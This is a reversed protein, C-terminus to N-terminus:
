GGLGSDGGKLEELVEVKAGAYARRDKKRTDYWGTYHILVKM